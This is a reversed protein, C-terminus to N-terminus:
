GASMHRGGAGEFDRGTFIERHKTYAHGKQVIELGHSTTYTTAMPSIPSSDNGFAADAPNSYLKSIATAGQHRKRRRDSVERIMDPWQDSTRAPIRDPHATPSNSPFPNYPRLWAAAAASQAASRSPIRISETRTTSPSSHISVPKRERYARKAQSGQDLHCRPHLTPISSSATHRKPSSSDNTHFPLPSLPAKIPNWLVTTVTKSRSTEKPGDSFSESSRIQLWQKIIPRRTM